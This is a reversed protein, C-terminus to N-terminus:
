KIKNIRKQAEGYSPSDQPVKAYAEKAKAAQNLRREYLDGLRFWANAPNGPFRDVLTELTQATEAWKDMNQLMVALRNLAIMTQPANPFQEIITRLTVMESPM